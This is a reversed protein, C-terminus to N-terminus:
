KKPDVLANYLPALSTARVPPNGDAVRSGNRNQILGIFILDNTPDVWFWTGYAGGWYFSDKGQPTKAVMPNEIIAFDLGFGVGEMNPGYLDVYTGQPLVSTRMLKITEPKLIRKGNLEGGNGLMQAFKFYDELTSYLGGSGSELVPKSTPTPAWPITTIKGDPGYSHVATLRPHKAAPVYFGTDVMGLPMFINKSLYEGLTMGTIRELIFGQLNVSPGYLWDEGPQATLPIAALKNIMDQSTGDSLKASEYGANTNFGALHSMLDRMTMARKLPVIAGSKDKVKMDKFEPIYKVVPDDLKWKGQEYLQMMAVGVIPKTMSAMRFITDQKLAEGKTKDARGYVDVHVVKGHRAVLTTIGALKEHDVYARLAADLAKLKEASFGVSEPSAMPLAAYAPLTFLAACLAAATLTRALKM